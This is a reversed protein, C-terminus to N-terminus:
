TLGGYERAFELRIESVRSPDTDFTLTETLRDLGNHTFNMSGVIALSDGVIGKAHLEAREDHTLGDTSGTARIAEVVERSPPDPRTAIVIRSGRDLLHRLVRSLRIVARPFDPDLAVFAGTANDLIPIDRIWPSVIWLYRSPALLECAFATQLLERAVNRTDTGRHLVQRTNM